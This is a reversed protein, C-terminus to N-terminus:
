KKAGKNAMKKGISAARQQDYPLDEEDSNVPTGLPTPKREPEPTFPVLPFLSGSFVAMTPDPTVALPASVAASQSDKIARGIARQRSAESATLRKPGDTPDMESTYMGTLKDPKMNEDDEDDSNVVDRGDELTRQRSGTAIQKAKAMWIQAKEALLPDSEIAESNEIIFKPTLEYKQAEHLITDYLPAHSEEEDLHSDGTALFEELQPLEQSFLIVRQGKRPQDPQSAHNWSVAEAVAALLASEKTDPTGEPALISASMSRDGQIWLQGAISRENRDM